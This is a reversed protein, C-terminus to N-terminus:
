EKRERKNNPVTFQKESPGHSRRSSTMAKGMVSMNHYLKTQPSPHALELRRSQRDRVTHMHTSTFTQTRAPEDAPHSLIDCHTEMMEYLKHM